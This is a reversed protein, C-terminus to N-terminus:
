GLRRTSLDKGIKNGFNLFMEEMSGSPSGNPKTKMRRSGSTPPISSRGGAKKMALKLKKKLNSIEKADAAKEKRSKIKEYLAIPDATPISNLEQLEAQTMASVLARIDHIDPQRNLWANQNQQTIELDQKLKGGESPKMAKGVHKLVDKVYVLEDEDGLVEELASLDVEQETPAQQKFQNFNTLLEDFQQTLNDNRAKEADYRSQFERMQKEASRVKKMEADTLDETDDDLEEEESDDEAVEDLLDSDDDSATADQAEDSEEELLEDTEEDQDTSSAFLNEQEEQPELGLSGLEQSSLERSNTISIGQERKPKPM